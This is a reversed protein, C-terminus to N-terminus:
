SAILDRIKAILEPANVPKTLYESCGAVFGTEVNGQEGRTTLMVIPTTRTAEEARLRRCVDFGTLGPMVVDLLILDPQQALAKSIGEEGASATILDYPEKALLMATMMLATRSDDVILIKKRPMHNEM